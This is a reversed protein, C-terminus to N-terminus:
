SVSVFSWMTACTTTSTHGGVTLVIYAETPSASAGAPPPYSADFRNATTTAPAEFSDSSGYEGYRSCYLAASPSSDVSGSWPLTKARAGVSTVVLGAPRAM